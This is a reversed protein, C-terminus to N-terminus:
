YTTSEIRIMSASHAFVYRKRFYIYHGKMPIGICWVSLSKDLFDIKEQITMLSRVNNIRQEVPMDFSHFHYHEQARAQHRGSLGALILAM